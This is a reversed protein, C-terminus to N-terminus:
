KKGLDELMNVMKSFTYKAHNEAARKDLNGKVEFHFTPSLAYTNTTNGATAIQPTSNFSKLQNSFESINKLHDHSLVFEGKLLKGFTENNRLSSLANKIGGVWGGEHYTGGNNLYDRVAQQADSHSMGSDILDLYHDNENVIGNGTQDTISSSPTENNDENNENNSDSDNGDSGNDVNYPTQGDVTTEGSGRDYGVDYGLSELYERYAANAQELERRQDETASWWADSNAKMQVLVASIESFQSNIGNLEMGDIEQLKDGFTNIKDILNEKLSEGIDENNQILFDKLSTFSEQISIVGDNVLDQEEKLRDKLKNLKENEAEKEAEVEQRKAELQEQLNQKRLQRKRRQNLEEIDEEKDALEKALKERKAKSEISDDLELVNLRSIIEQKEKQLETLRKQFEEEQEEKDMKEIQANIIEEYMSLEEDLLDIKKRHNKDLQDISDDIADVYDDTIQKILENQKKKLTDYVDKIKDKVGDITREYDWWAVSLRNVKSKNSNLEQNLNKMLQKQEDTLENKSELHTIEEVIIKNRERLRKAEKEALLQQAKTIDIQKLLEMRYEQSTSDYKSMRGESQRLKVDLDDLVEEFQGAILTIESVAKQVENAKSKIGKEFGLGVMKGYYETLKSPSRIGLFNKITSSVSSALEKAKEKVNGIKSTIGNIMGQVVESGMEKFKSPLGKFYDVIKGWTDKLFKGFEKAKASVTDWNRYLAVGAVILLGIATAVLGIPNAMMVANLTLQATTISKYLGVIFGITKFALFGGVVGALIPEIISWNEYIGEGINVLTNFSNILVDMTKSVTNKIKPMNEEIKQTFEEAKPILKKELPEVVSVLINRGIGRLSEGLSDYKIEDIKELTDANMNAKEEVNGLALIAKHELDEFQTGMIGVGITNREVPDEIKALASMTETFAEQASEGGKAFKQAMEGADLGLGQFADKTAKSEDKVRIGMEKIADGVKDTNFAGNEAGTALINYMDEADFGLQNFYVSYENLTDLYDGHKNLGDQTGQAILTMAQQGSIGFNEMMSSVTRTSEAVDYGFTDRLIIAEKTLNELEKGSEGTAQRVIAMSDALDQFSDGYNGKYLNKLSEEMNNMEDKTAGTKSQLDNLAQNFKDTAIVAGGFAGVIASVGITIGSKVKDFSPKINEIEESFKNVSEQAKETKKKFDQAFDKTSQSAKKMGDRFNKIKVALETSVTYNKSM